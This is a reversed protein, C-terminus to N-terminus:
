LVAAAVSVVTIATDIIAKLDEKTILEASDSIVLGELKIDELLEKYEDESIEKNIFSQTLAALNKAISSLEESSSQYEEITNQIEQISM